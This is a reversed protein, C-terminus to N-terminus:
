PREEAIMERPVWVIKHHQPCYSSGARTPAGCFNRHRAAGNIWQCGPKEPRADSMREAFTTFQRAKPQVYEGCQAARWLIGAVMSTSANVGSIAYLLSAVHKQSFGSTKLSVVLARRACQNDSILDQAV